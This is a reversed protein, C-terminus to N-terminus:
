LSVRQRVAYAALEAPTKLGMKEFIRARYTAVTKASVALRQAIDRTSRGAAILLFVEYERNSLQEHPLAPRGRAALDALRDVLPPSVYRGGAAIKRIAGVLMTPDSDKTLYGSAGLRLARVAFQDETYMTLILVPVSAFERKVQQLLELGDVDPMALDLLVVDYAAGRLCALVERGTAAEAAGVIDETGELTQLIGRRVVPHDDAILVRIMPDRGGEKASHDAM